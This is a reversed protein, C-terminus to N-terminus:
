WTVKGEKSRRGRHRCADNGWIQKKREDPLAHFPIFDSHVTIIESILKEVHEQTEPSMEKANRTLYVACAKQVRHKLKPRDYFFFHMIDKMGQNKKMPKGFQNLFKSLYDELLEEMRRPVSCSIVTVM